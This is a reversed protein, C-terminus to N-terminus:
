NKEYSSLLKEFFVHKSKLLYNIIVSYHYKTLTYIISIDLYVGM